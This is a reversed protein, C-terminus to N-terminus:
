HLLGGETHIRIIPDQKVQPWYNLVISHKDNDTVEVRTLYLNNSRHGQLKFNNVASILETEYHSLNKTM